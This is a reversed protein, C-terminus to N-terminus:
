FKEVPQRGTQAQWHKHVIESHERLIDIVEKPAWYSISRGALWRGRLLSSNIDLRPVALYSVLGGDGIRFAPRPEEKTGLPALKQADPWFRLTSDAFSLEGADHRAVVVLEALKPLAPWEQWTNLLSYDEAGLVFYLKAGPYDRQYERLTDATFSFDERKAELPNVFFSAHGAIAAKLMAYRLEFPLLTGANKHPPRACPVFDLRAPALAEYVEVGLRLHGLHLPNFSGGLVAISSM